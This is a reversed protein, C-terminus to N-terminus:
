WDLVGLQMSKINPLLSLKNLHDLVKSVPTDSWWLSTQVTRFDPPKSTDGEFVIYLDKLVNSTLLEFFVKFNSISFTFHLRQPSNSATKLFVSYAHVKLFSIELVYCCVM